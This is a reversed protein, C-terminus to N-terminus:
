FTGPIDYHDAAGVMVELWFPVYLVHSVANEGTSQGGVQLLVPMNRGM